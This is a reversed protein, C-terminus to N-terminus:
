NLNIYGQVITPVYGPEVPIHFDGIHIHPGRTWHNNQPALDSPHIRMPTGMEMAQKALADAQAQTLPEGQSAHKLEKRFARRQQVLERDVTEPASRTDVTDSAGKSGTNEFLRSYERAQESPAANQAVAVAEFVAAIRVAAPNQELAVDAAGIQAVPVVKPLIVPQISIAAPLARVQPLVAPLVVPTVRVAAAVAAAPSVLVPQSVVRPIHVDM